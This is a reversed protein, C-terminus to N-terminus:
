LVESYMIGDLNMGTEDVSYTYVGDVDPCPTFSISEDTDVSWIIESDSVTLTGAEETGELTFKARCRRYQRGAELFHDPEYQYWLIYASTQGITLARFDLPMQNETASPAGMWGWNKLVSYSVEPEGEPEVEPEVVPTTDALLTLSQEDGATAPDKCASLALAALASIGILFKTRNM